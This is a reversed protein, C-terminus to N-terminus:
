DLTSGAWRIVEAWDNVGQGQATVRGTRDRVAVLPATWQKGVQIGLEAFTADLVGSRWPYLNVAPFAAERSSLLGPLDGVAAQGRDVNFALLKIRHNACFRALDVLGPGDEDGAVQWAYYLVVVSPRDRVGAIRDAAERVTLRELGEAGGADRSPDKPNGARTRLRRNDGGALRYYTGFGADDLAVYRDAFVRSYEDGSDVLLWSYWGGVAELTNALEGMLDLQWGEPTHRFFHPTAFPSGTFYLMAVNGREDIAYAKRYEMALWGAKYGRTLPLGRLYLQSRETFFPVTAIHRDSALWELFRHYAAEVTPQPRFRASDAPHAPPAMSPRRPGPGPRGVEASAGGGSALRRVDRVYDEVSPDYEEGLLAERVRWLLMRVTLRLGLEPDGGEFFSRAHERVVFGIFADPLIGQLRPAVEIRMLRRTSDFAILVGRGSNERGVGLERARRVAYQEISEAGTTPVLLFRIDVGTEDFLLLLQEEHRARLERSLLDIDDTIRPNLRWRLPSKSITWGILGLGMVLLLVIRRRPPRGLFRM